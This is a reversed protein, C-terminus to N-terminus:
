WGGRERLSTYRGPRGVILHDLLRIGIITAAEDIRRTFALDEASPSPDGSPHTHFLLLGAASVLLGQRLIARPEVAARDLTGRFLEREHLLRHRTDLFLAGMVEQDPRAYRLSLYRAAVGPREFMPRPLVERRALRTALELAALIRAAKAPGLGHGRLELVGCGSMRHLGGVDELLERAVTLASGGRRGTGLLVALLEAESLTGAGHDLLRERPREELPIDRILGSEAQPAPRQRVERDSTPRKM